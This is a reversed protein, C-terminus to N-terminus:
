EAPLHSVESRQGAGSRELPADDVPYRALMLLAVDSVALLYDIQIGRGREHIGSEGCEGVGAFGHGGPLALRYEM